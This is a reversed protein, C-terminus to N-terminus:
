RAKHRMEILRLMEFICFGISVSILFGTFGGFAVALIGLVPGALVIGEKIDQLM